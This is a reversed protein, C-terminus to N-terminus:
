KYFFQSKLYDEITDIEMWGRKIKICKIKINNSILYNLFDTIYANQMNKAYFFKKKGYERKARNYFYKFLNCGNKNLKIMGIFEHSSKNLKIKKGIKTLINKSDFEAKEAESVPHMKRNKYNKKWDGDM